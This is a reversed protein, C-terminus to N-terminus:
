GTLRILRLRQANEEVFKKAAASRHVPHGDVTLYLKGRVQRLPRRMFELFVPNQFKGEFVMFALKGRNTIASIMNGGFRQGKARV